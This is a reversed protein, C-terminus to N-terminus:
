YESQLYNTPTVKWQGEDKKRIKSYVIERFKEILERRQRAGQMDTNEKRGVLADKLPVHLPSILQSLFKLDRVFPSNPDFYSVAGTWRDCSPRM